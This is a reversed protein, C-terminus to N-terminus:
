CTEDGKEIMKRIPDLIYGLGAWALGLAHEATVNKFLFPYHHNVMSVCSGLPGIIPADSKAFCHMFNLTM